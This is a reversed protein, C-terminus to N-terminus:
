GLAVGSTATYIKREMIYRWVPEPVLYRVSEGAELRDRVLTASECAEPLQLLRVKTRLDAPVNALARDLEGPSTGGRPAILFGHIQALVEDLRQWRSHILSDGGAIFYLEDDPHRKRLRPLLDATYGTAADDTDTLDLAFAPNSAIALRLMTARDEVGAHPAERHHASRVPLFLVQDLREIERVAEAIFLHANHVPDFAGGFLGIRM